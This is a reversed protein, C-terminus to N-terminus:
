SSAATTKHETSRPEVDKSFLYHSRMWSPGPPENQDIALHGAAVGLAIIADMIRESAANWHDPGNPLLDDFRMKAGIHLEVLRGTGINRLPTSIGLVQETGRIFCPVVTVSAEVAIRGVGARPRNLRGLRSRTGEPFAILFRGSSTTRLDTIACALADQRVGGHRDIPSLRLVHRSFLALPFSSFYVDQAAIVRGAVSPRGGIFPLMACVPVGADLHSLHNLCILLNENRPVLSQPDGFVEVRNMRGYVLEAIAGLGHRFLLAELLGVRPNM